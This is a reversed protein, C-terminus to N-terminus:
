RSNFLSKKLIWGARLVHVVFTTAMLGLFVAFSQALCGGLAGISFTVLAFNRRAAFLHFIADMREYDFLERGAYYSFLGSCIKDLVFLLIVSFTILTQSSDISFKGGSLYWGISVFWLALGPAAAVHEFKGMSDSLHLRLRALKGDLSDLIVGFWALTLGTGIWGAGIFPSAMWVCLVSMVTYTNPTTGKNIVRRTLWRVLHYYGYRAVFDIVGKFTRRFMRNEIKKASLGDSVKSIFAPMKLRLSPIYLDLDQPRLVVPLSVKEELLEWSNSKADFFKEGLDVDTYCVARSETCIMVGPGNNLTYSIVRDDYITDGAVLLLPENAEGVATWFSQADPVCAWIIEVSYLRNFDERLQGIRHLEDSCLFVKFSEIGLLSFERIQREVLTMGWVIIGANSSTADIWVCPKSM